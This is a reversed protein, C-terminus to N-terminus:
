ECGEAVKEFCQFLKEVSEENFPPVLRVNKSVDFKVNRSGGSGVADLKAHELKLKELEVESRYKEVAVAAEKEIKEKELEIRAKELREAKEMELKKLEFEFKLKLEGSEMERHEVPIDRELKALVAREFIGENVFYEAVSQLIQRKRDSQRVRIGVHQTINVLEVKRLTVLEEYTPSAVFSEVDFSM